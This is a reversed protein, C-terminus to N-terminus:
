GVMASLHSQFSIQAIRHSISLGHSPPRETFQLSVQNARVSSIRANACLLNICLRDGRCLGDM